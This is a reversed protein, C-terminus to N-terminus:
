RYRVFDEAPDATRGTEHFYIMTTNVNTHRAMAQVQTLSAGNRIASSIASHRLSHTTKDDGLVGAARYRQKAIHRIARLSLREGRGRQGLSVFLAGKRTPHVALWRRIAREAPASLVVFDDKEVHGKGQVWLVLRGDRTKLDEINAQRCETQRLAAYAMLALLAQDRRGMPEDDCTDFVGLVEDATLEERKHAATIGRRRSGRIGLAPNVAIYGQEHAWTFLSRVGALWTNVSGPKYQEGEKLSEVWDRITAGNLEARGDGALWELFRLVGRRYTTRTTPSMDGLSRQWADLLQQLRQTNEWVAPVTTESDITTLNTM